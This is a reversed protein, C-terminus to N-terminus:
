LKSLWLSTPVMVFSTELMISVKMSLVRSAYRHNFTDNEADQEKNPETTKPRPETQEEPLVAIVPQVLVIIHGILSAFVKVLIIM